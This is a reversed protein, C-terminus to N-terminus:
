GLLNNLANNIALRVSKDGQDVFPWNGAIVAVEERRLGFLLEFEWDPFFPGEAAARLSAGIAAIERDSFRETVSPTSREFRRGLTRPEGAFRRLDVTRGEM